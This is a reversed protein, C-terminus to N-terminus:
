RNKHGEVIHTVVIALMVVAMRFRVRIPPQLKEVHAALLRLAEYHIVVTVVVLVLTILWPMVM